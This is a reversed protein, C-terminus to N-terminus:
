LYAFVQSTQKGLNDGCVRTSAVSGIMHMLLVKEMQSATFSTAM